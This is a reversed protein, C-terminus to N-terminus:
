QNLSSARALSLTQPAPRPAQPELRKGARMAAVKQRFRTSVFGAFYWLRTEHLVRRDIDGSFLSTFWGLLHKLGERYIFLPTGLFTRQTTPVELVGDGNVLERYWMLAEYKACMFRWRRHYARTLREPPVEVWVEVEPLYLGTKGAQWLRLQFERDSGRRFKESFLGLEEFVTRRCGFNETALCYLAATRSLSFPKTGEQLAVPGHHRDTLWSPRPTRWRAQVRGGICAVEPHEAFARVMSALWNDAPEVDDDIYAILPARARIVGANRAYPIGQEPVFIYEIHVNPYRDSVRRVVERTGDKSNNDAVVIEYTFGEVKQRVLSELVGELQDARNYTAICVSIDPLETTMPSVQAATATCRVNGVGILSGNPVFRVVVVITRPESVIGPAYQWKVGTAGGAVHVGHRRPSPDGRRCSIGRREKQL